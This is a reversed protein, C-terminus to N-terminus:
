CSTSMSPNNPLGSLSSPPVAPPLSAVPRPGAALERSDLLNKKVEEKEEGDELLESISHPLAGKDRGGVFEGVRVETSDVADKRSRLATTVEGVM